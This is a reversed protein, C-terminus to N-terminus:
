NAAHIIPMESGAPMRPTAAALGGDSDRRQRNANIGCHALSSATRLARATRPPFIPMGRGEKSHLRGWWVVVVVVEAVGGGGKENAHGRRGCGTQAGRVADGGDRCGKGQRGHTM